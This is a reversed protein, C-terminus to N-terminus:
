KLIDSQPPLLRGIPAGRQGEGDWVDPEGAVHTAAVGVRVGECEM